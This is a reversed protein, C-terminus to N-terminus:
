VLLYVQPRFKIKVDSQDFINYADVMSGELSEIESLLNPDYQDIVLVKRKRVAYLMKAKNAGYNVVEYENCDFQELFSEKESRQIYRM